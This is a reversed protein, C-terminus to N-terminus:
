VMRLGAYLAAGTGTITTVSVRAYPKRIKVQMSFPKSTYTGALTTTSATTYTTGDVSEQVLFVINIAGSTGVAKGFVDVIIPETGGYPQIGVNPGTTATTIGNALSVEM